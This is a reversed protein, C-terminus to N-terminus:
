LAPPLPCFPFLPCMCTVELFYSVTTFQLSSKWRRSHRIAKVKNLETVQLVRYTINIPLQLYVEPSGFMEWSNEQKEKASKLRVLSDTSTCLTPSIHVPAPTGPHLTAGSKCLSTRGSVLALLITQSTLSPHFLEHAFDSFTSNCFKSKM